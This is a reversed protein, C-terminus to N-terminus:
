EEIPPFNGEDDDLLNQILDKPVNHDAKIHKKVHDVMDKTNDATFSVLQDDDALICAQCVLGSHSIYIYVDSDFFRAYAM